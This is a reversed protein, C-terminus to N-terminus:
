AAAWRKPSARASNGTSSASLLRTVTQKLSQLSVPKVLYSSSGALAGRVLDLPSSRSTLIIVPISQLSKDRKLTRTLAFGDAGPLMVDVFVLDYAGSSLADLAEPASGVGVAEVGLGQLVAALQRRMTPSVDVVLARPWQPPFDGGPAGPVGHLARPVVTGCRVAADVVRNLTDLLQLTFRQLLLDDRGRISDNRRGVRVVPREGNVRQLTRVLDPSGHSTMDVLAIDYDDSAAYVSFEFRYPNHHAHRLMIETLRRFRHGLGFAAIRVIPRSDAPAGRRMASRAAPTPDSHSM